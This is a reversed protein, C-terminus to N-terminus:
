QPNTQSLNYVTIWKNEGKNMSLLFLTKELDYKCIVAYSSLKCRNPHINWTLSHINVSSVSKQNSLKKITNNKNSVHLMYTVSIVNEECVLINM